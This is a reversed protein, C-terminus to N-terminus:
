ATIKKATQWTTNFLFKHMQYITPHEVIMGIIHGNYRSIYSVKNDYIFMISTFPQSPPLVRIETNQSDFSKHHQRIFPSDITIMRKKIQKSKRDSVYSKNLEPFEKNVVENDIYSLIETASTLSDQAVKLAGELGEYFKVGPKSSILQFMSRLDPLARGLEEAANFLAAKKKALMLELNEPHKALFRIPKGPEDLKEVLGKEVLSDLHYYANGRKLGTDSLLPKIGTPGAKLLLEYIQAEASNLGASQLIEAYQSSNTSNKNTIEM